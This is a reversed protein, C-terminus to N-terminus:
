LCYTLGTVFHQSHAPLTFSVETPVWHVDANLQTVSDDWVKKLQALSTQSKGSRPGFVTNTAVASGEKKIDEEPITYRKSTLDNQIYTLSLAAITFKVTAAWNLLETFTSMSPNVKDGGNVGTPGTPM